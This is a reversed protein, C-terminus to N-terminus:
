EERLTELHEVLTREPELHMAALRNSLPEVRKGQRLEALYGQLMAKREPTGHLMFHAWAWSEAYHIQSMDAASRIEELRTVDPLWGKRLEESLLALHSKHFGNRERGVEFFEALGEDLWLPLNSVAAHLYGHSVEHRLDDAVNEGWHAYVSLRDDTEVFFARRQPFHPFRQAVFQEYGKADNFLHVHIPTSTPPLDLLASLEPGQQEIEALLRDKAPLPVDCHIVLQGRTEVDNVPRASGWLSCGLQLLAVACLGVIRMRAFM